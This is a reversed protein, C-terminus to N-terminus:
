DVPVPIAPARAAAAAAAAGAPAAPPRRNSQVSRRLAGGGGFLLAAALALLTAALLPRYFLWALAIVTLAHAGALVIAVLGLRVPLLPRCGTGGHRWGARGRSVPGIGHPGVRGPQPGLGGRTGLSSHMCGVDCHRRKIINDRHNSSPAIPEPEPEPEPAPRKVTVPEPEPEPEM